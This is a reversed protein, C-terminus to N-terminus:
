LPVEGDTPYIHVLIENAAILVRRVALLKVIDIM